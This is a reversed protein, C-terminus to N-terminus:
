TADPAEGQTPRRRRKPKREEVLIQELRELALKLYGPIPHTGNLWKSVTPQTTELRGALESQNLGLRVYWRKFDELKMPELENALPAMTSDLRM